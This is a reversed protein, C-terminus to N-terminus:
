RTIWELRRISQKIYEIDEIIEWQQQSIDNLTSDISVCLMIYSIPLVFFVVAVVFSMCGFKDEDKNEM